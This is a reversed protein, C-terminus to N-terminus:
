YTAIVNFTGPFDSLSPARRFCHVIVFGNGRGNNAGPYPGNGGLGGYGWPEPSIPNPGLLPYDPQFMAPSVNRRSGAYTAGNSYAGGVYGSGGAGGGYGSGAGGYYGGGGGGDSGPGGQLYSGNRSPVTPYSGGGFPTGGTAPGGPSPGGGGSPSGPEGYSGGGAGGAGTPAPYSPFNTNVQGGGGGGAIIYSTFSPPPSTPSTPGRLIGSFGGGPAYSDAGRGNNSLSGVAVKITEGASVSVVGQSFGGAGGNGGQYSNPFNEGQGGSGSMRVWIFSTEPPVVWDSATGKFDRPSKFIYTGIYAPVISTDSISITSSFAVIPGSISDTKVNLRFSETGETTQDPSTTITVTGIGGTIAFSGTLSTTFDSSNVTGSVGVVQYYLITGSPVNTTTVTFVVSANNETISTTSQTIFYTPQKALNKGFGSGSSLRSIFPM